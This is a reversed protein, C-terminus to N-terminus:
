GIAQLLLRFESRNQHNPLLSAQYDFQAYIGAGDSVLQAINLLTGGPLESGEGSCSSLISRSCHGRKIYMTCLAHTRLMSVSHRAWGPAPM